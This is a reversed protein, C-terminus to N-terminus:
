AAHRRASMATPATDTFRLRNAAGEVPAVFMKEMLRAPRRGFLRLMRRYPELALRRHDSLWRSLSRLGPDDPALGWKQRFREVSAENWAQSWRLRFYELDSREFPPPAVYTVVSRPELFVQGGVERTMLCLDTHEAASLLMEDLPGLRDFTDMRVLACHFEIMEVPGRRLTPAIKELPEGHFCHSERFVRRGNETPFGAMGGAMHITTAIPEGECYMPGVVWAGSEEACNVLAELWGPSPIVDNDIFVVYKTRVQAAALNRAVNPALYEDRRILRFPRDAAQRELYDRVHPPSGGDLYLLEVPPPTHQFIAELSPATYSFRERPVVAITALPSRM